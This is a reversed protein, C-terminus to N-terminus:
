VPYGLYALLGLQADPNNAWEAETGADAVALETERAIVRECLLGPELAMLDGAEYPTAPEINPATMEITGVGTDRTVLAVGVGLSKAVVTMLLRWAQIMEADPAPTAVRSDPSM